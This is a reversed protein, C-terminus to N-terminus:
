TSKHKLARVAAAAASSIAMQDLRVAARELADNEAARIAALVAKVAGRDLECRFTDDKPFRDIDQVFEKLEAIAEEPTVKREVVHVRQYRGSLNSELDGAKCWGSDPAKICKVEICGYGDDKKTVRQIDTGDRTVLDGVKFEDRM